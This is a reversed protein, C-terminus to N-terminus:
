MKILKTTKIENGNHMRLFYIGNPLESVSVSHKGPSVLEKSMVKVGSLSYFDVNSMGSETKGSIEITVPGTAPNPYVRIAAVMEQGAISSKMENEGTANGVLANFPQNCYTNDLTIYGHMYGGALVKTGPLFLIKQGAIFTVSAGANVVLAAGNGAVTITNTANFCTDSSITDSVTLNVPIVTGTTTFTMDQGYINGQGSTKPVGWFRFHYTTNSYLGTLAATVAQLVGVSRVSPPVPISGNGYDTTTGYEFYVEVVEGNTNIDGNLTATTEAVDTAPLTHYDTIVKSWEYAGM